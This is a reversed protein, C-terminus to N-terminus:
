ARFSPASLPSRFNNREVTSLHRSVDMASTFPDKFAKRTRIQAATASDFERRHTKLDFLCQRNQRQLIPTSIALPLGLPSNERTVKRSFFRCNAPFHVLLEFRSSLNNMRFPKIASLTPNASVYVMSVFSKASELLSLTRSICRIM